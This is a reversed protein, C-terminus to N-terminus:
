RHFLGVITIKHWRKQNEHCIHMYKNFGNKTQTYIINSLRNCIIKITDLCKEPQKTMKVVKRLPPTMMDWDNRLQNKNLNSGLKAAIFTARIFREVYM